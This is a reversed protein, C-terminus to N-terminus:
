LQVAVDKQSYAGVVGEACRRLLSVVPGCQLVDAIVPLELAAGESLIKGSNSMGSGSAAQIASVHKEYCQVVALVEDECQLEQAPVLYAHRTDEVGNLMKHLTEEDKLLKERDLRVAAELHVDDGLPRMDVPPIARIKKVAPALSTAPGIEPTQTAAATGSAATPSTTVAREQEENRFPSPSWFMPSPKPGSLFWSIPDYWKFPRRAEKSDEYRNIVLLDRPPTMLGRPGFIQNEKAAGLQVLLLGLKVQREVEEPTVFVEKAAGSSSGGDNGTTQTHIELKDAPPKSLDPPTPATAVTM